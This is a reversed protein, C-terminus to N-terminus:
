LFNLKDSTYVSCSESTDVDLPMTSFYEKATSWREKDGEKKIQFQVCDESSHLCDSAGPMSFSIKRATENSPDEATSDHAASSGGALRDAEQNEARVGVPSLQAGTEVMVPTYGMHTPSARPSWKSPTGPQVSHSYFASPQPSPQSYDQINIRPPNAPPTHNARLGTLIQSLSCNPYRKMFLIFGALSVFMGSPVTISKLVARWKGAKDIVQLSTSSVLNGDRDRIDYTGDHRATLRAIVVETVSGNRGLSVLGRYRMDHDMVQGERILQVPGRPPGPCHPHQPVPGERERGPRHLQGPGGADGERGGLGERGAAAPGPRRRRRRDSEVAGGARGRAPCGPAFVGAPLRGPPHRASLDGRLKKPLIQYM